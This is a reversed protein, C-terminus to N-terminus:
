MFIQLDLSDKLQRIGEELANSSAERSVCIGGVRLKIKGRENNNSFASIATATELDLLINKMSISVLRPCTSVLTVLAQGYCWRGRVVCSWELFALYNGFQNAMTDLYCNVVPTITNLSSVDVILGEVPIQILYMSQNMLYSCVSDGVMLWLVVRLDPNKDVVENWILLSLHDKLYPQVSFDFLITLRRLLPCAFVLTKIIEDTLHEFTIEIHELYSFREIAKVFARGPTATIHLMKTLSLRKVKSEGAEEDTAAVAMLLRGSSPKSLLELSTFSVEELFRRQRTLFKCLDCIVRSKWDKSANYYKFGSFSFSRLTMAHPLARLLKSVSSLVANAQPAYVTQPGQARRELNLVLHRVHLYLRSDKHGFFSITNRWNWGPHVTVEVKHWMSPVSIIAERWRKCVQCCSGRDKNSLERFIIVLLEIPLENFPGTVGVEM